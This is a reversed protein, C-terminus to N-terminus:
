LKKSKKKLHGVKISSTKLLDTIDEGWYNPDEIKTFIDYERSSLSSTDLTINAKGATVIDHIYLNVDETIRNGNIYTGNKSNLDRVIIEENSVILEFHKSSVKPDNIVIDATDSSRGFTARRKISIKHNKGENEIKFRITM